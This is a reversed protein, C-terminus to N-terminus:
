HVNFNYYASGRRGMRGMVGGFGWFHQQVQSGTFSIGEVVVTTSGVSYVSNRGSSEPTCETILTFDTRAPSPPPHM